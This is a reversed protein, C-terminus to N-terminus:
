VRGEAGARSKRGGRLVHALLMPCRYHEETTCYNESDGGEPTLQTVSACCVSKKGDRELYPCEM